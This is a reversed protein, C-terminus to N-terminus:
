IVELAARRPGAKTSDAMRCHKTSVELSGRVSAMVDLRGKREGLSAGGARWGLPKDLYPGYKRALPHTRYPRCKRALQRAFHGANVPRAQGTNVPWGPRCKRAPIRNENEPAGWPAESM